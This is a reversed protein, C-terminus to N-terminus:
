AARKWNQGGCLVAVCGNVRLTGDKNLSMNASITRDTGPFQFRGGTWKAAGSPKFGVMITKGVFAQPDPTPSGNRTKAAAGPPRPKVAVIVGCLRDTQGPCPAIRVRASDEPLIWVGEAGSAVQPAGGLYALAAFGILKL